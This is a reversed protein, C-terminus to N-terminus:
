GWRSPNWIRGDLEGSNDDLRKLQEKSLALLGYYFARDEMTIAHTLLDEITTLLWAQEDM